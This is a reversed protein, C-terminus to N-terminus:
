NSCSYYTNTFEIANSIITMCYIITLCIIVFLVATGFVVPLIIYLHNNSGGTVMETARDTNSSTPTLTPLMTDISAAAFSTSLTEKRHSSFLHPKELM